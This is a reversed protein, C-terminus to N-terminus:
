ILVYLKFNMAEEFVSNARKITKEFLPLSSPFSLQKFLLNVAEFQCDM